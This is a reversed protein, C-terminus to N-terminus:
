QVEKREDGHEPLGRSTGVTEKKRRGRVGQGM